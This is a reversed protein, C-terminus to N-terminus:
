FFFFVQYEEDEQNSNENHYMIAVLDYDVAYGCQRPIFIGRKIRVKNEKIDNNQISQKTLQEEM